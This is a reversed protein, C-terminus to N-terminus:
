HAKLPFVKLSGVQIKIYEKSMSHQSIGYIQNFSIHFSEKNKEM